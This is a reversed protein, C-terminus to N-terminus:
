LWENILDFVIEIKDKNKTENLLFSDGKQILGYKTILENEISFNNISNLKWGENTARLRVKEKVQIFSIDTFRGPCLTVSEIQVKLVILYPNFHYSHLPFNGSNGLYNINFGNDDQWTYTCLNFTMLSNKTIPEYKIFYYRWDKNEPKFKDILSTLKEVTTTGKAMLYNSLFADLSYSIKQRENKDSATLIRNWCGKCGFYRIKGLSSYDHTMVSYDGNTLYARVIISNEIDDSWIDLFANIKKDIDATDLKFNATNGQIQYHEELAHFSKKLGPNSVILRAKTKENSIYDQAFGSFEHEAFLQYVSKNNEAKKKKILGDIFKCYESVDPLRLRTAYEIRRSQNPQRVTLLLNRVIRVFDKFEDDLKKLSNNIGYSLIAYFLVKDKVDFGNDTIARIFYNKSYNDFTSLGSFMSEFFENIDVIETLFDLSKFLFDINEKDSFIRNQFDFDIKIDSSLTKPNNKFFLLEAIYSIFRYICGDITSNIKTRYSWFLDIWVSDIKFAFYQQYTVTTDQYNLKLDAYNTDKSSLLSSFQAKFNEFSTLPKGRSNMKIYLEDTLKFEDSKIDIYDFTIMRNKVLNEWAVDKEIIEEQLTNLMNLMSIITPDNSWSAMFWPSDIIQNSIPMGNEIALPQIILNHCFRKSSIRTEYTFNTLYKQSENTIKNNDRPALYWHILWLTTLRQQGDLPIFAHADNGKKETYGYVFDLNLPTSATQLSQKIKGVFSKRLDLESGRGQAFDRQIQPVIVKYMDLLEKLSYRM